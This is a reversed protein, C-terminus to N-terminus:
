VEYCTLEGIWGDEDHPEINLVKMSIGCDLFLMSMCQKDNPHENKIRAVENVVAPAEIEEIGFGGMTRWRDIFIDSVRTVQKLFGDEFERTVKLHGKVMGNVICQKDDPHEDKIRTVEEYCTLEGIWEDEDHPEINLVKM